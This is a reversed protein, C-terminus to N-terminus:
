PILPIFVEEELQGAGGSGCIVSSQIIDIFFSEPAEYPKLKIMISYNNINNFSEWTAFQELNGSGKYLSQVAYAIPRPKMGGSLTEDPEAFLGFMTATTGGSWSTDASPSHLRFFHCTRVFDLTNLAKLYERAIYAHQREYDESTYYWAYEDSGIKMRM